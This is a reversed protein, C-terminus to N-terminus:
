GNKQKTWKILTEPSRYLFILKAFLEEELQFEGSERVLYIDLCLQLVRDVDPLEDFMIRGYLGSVFSRVLRGIVLVLSVYLGIIGYQAFFTFTGPFVLDSFAIITLCCPLYYEEHPNKPAEKVEWWQVRTGEIRQTQLKITVDKFGMPGKPILPRVYSPKEKAPVRVYRPFVHEILIPKTSNGYLMDALEQRMTSGPEVQFANEDSIIPEVMKSQAVRTFSWRVRIQLTSNSMMIAQLSQLSPPSITWIDTSNGMLNIEIVNGAEYNSLFVQVAKDKIHQNMLSRYEVETFPKIYQNRASMKFLPAYGGISIQLSCDYPLNKTGVANTLAFLVLPFWIIFILIFLMGGGMLYKILPQRKVGRPTPYDLEARRYCKLIFVSAYIDELKIWYFLTLTTDTWMWDMITRLEWLFPIASFGKFLFLNPYNYKKTLFNGLIRTPYGSRIQFSSLLFYCCKSFYWLRAPTNKYFERETLSPIIFFMWIHILIVLIFQFILKGVICKRLFLARDVIILAFQAVLMILFPIPIKNETIYSAVDGEEPVGSGFASYGFLVIIFTIFDCLFMPAYVDATVRFKPHLLKDFFNWFTKFYHSFECTMLLLQKKSGPKSKNLDSLSSPSSLALDTKEPSSIPESELSNIQPIKQDDFKESKPSLDKINTFVEKNTPTINSKEQSKVLGNSGPTDVDNTLSNSVSKVNDKWLGLSKLISRHFFLILLLVLDYVAYYEKKEIGLIRPPWFPDKVIEKGVWPFFGFQFLYKIIVVAEVYTILSVWFTKSPRPISLTGWLFVMLPPPMALISATQLMNLVVLFYCVLESRSILVYYLATIFKIILSRDPQLAELDHLTFTEYTKYPTAWGNEDIMNLKSNELNNNVEMTKPLNPRDMPIAVAQVDPIYVKKMKEEQKRQGKEQALIQAIYRYDRSIKNLQQTASELIGYFFLLLFHLFYKIKLFIIYLMNKSADDDNDDECEDNRDPDIEKDKSSPEESKSVQDLILSGPIPEGSTSKMRGSTTPALQIIASPQSRPEQQSLLSLRDTKTTRRCKSDSSSDEYISGEHTLKGEQVAGKIGGKTLAVNLLQMPGIGTAEEDGELPRPEPYELDALADDAHEDDSIDEFMYYDGSRISEHKALLKKSKPGDKGWKRKVSKPPSLTVLKKCKPRCPGILLSDSSNLNVPRDDKTKVFSSSGLIGLDISKSTSTTRYSSLYRLTTETQQCLKQYFKMNHIVIEKQGKTSAAEHYSQRFPLGQFHTSPEQTIRRALKKNQHKIQEMKKKIKEMVLREKDDQESVEKWKIQNVLEAGRSALLQQAYIESIIHKFYFSGFIRKQLILFVFCIGDWLIGAQEVPVSCEASLNLERSAGFGAKLCAISLLQVLWCLNAELASMYVCGLVQLIAKIFIVAFNYAILVTWFKYITKLPKLFLENGYWLFFFSAILYGMCFLSVRNTATILMITLTVWYSYSFFAFKLKDLLTTTHTVFDPIPNQISYLSDLKWIEKNSGGEFEAPATYHAGYDFTKSRAKKIRAGLSGLISAQSKSGSCKAQSLSIDPPNFPQPASPDHFEIRFVCLQCTAFLLQFFDTSIKYSSPPVLFDPLYLWDRLGGKITNTWPYEMCLGPPMGIRAMYQLPIVVVLFMVYIPWILSLAKRSPFLLIGLWVSYIVSWADWRLGVTAIISILTIEVGFKYFCFNALYKILNVLGFDARDRTISPFLYSRKPQTPPPVLHASVRRTENDYHAISPGTPAMSFKRQRLKVVKQFCLLFLIGLYGKIYSAIDPVKMFGLWEANDVTTNLSSIGSCNTRFYEVKFYDIQYTMKVIILCGIWISSIYSLLTQLPPVALGIVIALVFPVNIAKAENVCLFMLAMAVLKFVHLEAMKWAYKSIVNCVYSLRRSFWYFYYVFDKETSTADIRREIAKMRALENKTDQPPMTSPKDMDILELFPKHFYHVQLIIIVIFATPTFLRVFLTKTDYQELGFDNLIEYSLHTKNHWYEPFNEFQYTYILILIVMSYCILFVWFIYMTLRWVKFVMQFMILFVVFFMTYGIRYLVVPATAIGMFLLFGCCILIWYKICLWYMLHGLKSTIRTGDQSLIDSPKLAGTILQQQQGDISIVRVLNEKKKEIVFQRMTIWFLCTFVSKLALQLCPYKYKILGFQALPFNKYSDAPLEDDTLKLGYIFQLFLLIIAYAVFFPSSYLCYSRSNPSMWVVCAWLLFVFTLWSHYTIAWVMMLILSIVYTQRIIVNIMAAFIYYLPSIKSTWHKRKRRAISTTQGSISVSKTDIQSESRINKTALTDASRPKGDLQTTTSLVKPLNQSSALAQSSKETLLSYSIKINICLLWYLTMLFAPNLYVDWGVPFLNMEYPAECNTQVIATLGLLRAVLEEPPFLIQLNQFQYLYLALIHIAVYFLLFFRLSMLCNFTHNTTKDSVSGHLSPSKQDQCFQTTRFLFRKCCAWATASGIFILFYLASPLTPYIVGCGALAAFLSAECLSAIFPTKPSGTGSKSPGGGSGFLNLGSEVVLNMISSRHGEAPLPNTNYGTEEIDELVLKKSESITPLPAILSKSEHIAPSSPPTQAIKSKAAALAFKDSDDYPKMKHCLILVLTSVLMVMLDPAILRTIQLPSAQHLKQYGLERVVREIFTCNSLMHGYPPMALLSVHFILHGLCALASFVIIFKLYRGTPGLMSKSTPTPLLPAILLCILYVLSLVNIRIIAGGILAWPILIWFIFGCILKRSVVAM